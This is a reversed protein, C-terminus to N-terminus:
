GKAPTSMFFLLIAIGISMGAILLAMVSILVSWFSFHHNIDDRLDDIRKNTNDIMMLYTDQQADYVEKKVYEESM